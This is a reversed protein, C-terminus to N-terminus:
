LKLNIESLVASVLKMRKIQPDTPEQSYMDDIEAINFRGMLKVLIKKFLVALPISEKLIAVLQRALVIAAAIPPDFNEDLLDDHPGDYLTDAAIEFYNELIYYFDPLDKELREPKEYSAVLKLICLGPLTCVKFNFDAVKIQEAHELVQMNGFVSLLMPPNGELYVHHNNEIGGFPILDIITQDPAHMRYPEDDPRFGEDQRLYNKLANFDEQRKIYICFDVDLTTRREPLLDLHNLWLDRAFAGILYFDIDFKRFARELAEFTPAMDGYRM